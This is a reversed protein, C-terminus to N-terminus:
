FDFSMKGGFNQERTTPGFHGGYNLKLNVGDSRLMEMGLAVDGLVRDIPNSAYFPAAGAPAGEFSAGIALASKDFWTAGGRLFPRLLMGGALEYQTGIELSPSFSLVTDHIGSSTLDAGGAGTETFGGMDLHIANADAIPKLYWSGRDILYAVRLQSGIYGGTSSSQAVGSLGGFDIPRLTRSAGAGGTVGAALLLAGPNYKVVAGGEFWDGKASARTDTTLRSSEYGLGVGAFWDKAIAVQIGGSPGMARDQGGILDATASRWLTRDRVQAWMCQGEAIFAFGGDAVSCSLLSNSFSLNATILGAAVKAYADPSLQDLANALSQQTPLTMLAHAVPNFSPSGGMDVITNISQALSSQSANLDGNGLFNVTAALVMENADPFLLQYSVAATNVAAIGNNAIGGAAHLITFQTSLSSFYIPNVLVSGALAALGTVDIRSAQGTNADLLLQGTGTQVLNGTLATTQVTGWPIGAMLQGSNTLTNWAGVNVAPGMLFVGGAMNNLANDGSGLDANGAILGFNSATNGNGVFKMANAGTGSASLTGSNVFTNNDGQALFGASNTGFVAVTGQNVVTNGSGVRIGWLGTSNGAIIGTATNTITNNDYVHIGNGGWAPAIVGSNTIRNNSVADIGTDAGIIAAGNTITNGSAALIGAPRSGVIPATNDIVSNNVGSNDFFTFTDLSSLGSNLDFGSVSVTVYRGDISVTAYNYSLAFVDGPYVPGLPPCPPSDCGLPAGASGALVQYTGDHQTRYYLHEHGAFLISANTNTASGSTTITQWTDAMNAEASPVKPAFAPIHTFVFTHAATSNQLLGAIWAQQPADIGYHPGSGDAPAYFSDAIIFQTNGIHFSFALNNFGAPGNQRWGGNFLVQFEQQRALPNDPSGSRTYLEHNGIAYASPIGAATLRDTFVHQFETLNATGGRYAADGGFIVVNPATSMALIRDVIPTLVSTNIIDNNADGRTDAVWIFSQSQEAHVPLAWSVIAVALPFTRLLLKRLNCKSRISAM